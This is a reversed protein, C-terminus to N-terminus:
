LRGPNWDLRVSPAWLNETIDFDLPWSLVLTSWERVFIIVM